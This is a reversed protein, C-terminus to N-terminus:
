LEPHVTKFDAENAAYVASIASIMDERRRAVTGIILLAPATPQSVSRLSALDIWHLEQNPRTANSVILCPTQPSMGAAIVQKAIENYRGNPMYIALTSGAAAFHTIETPGRGIAHQATLFVVSSAGDRDTLPVQAQASAAVAATIGPVIEFEIGARRLAAMEEAARGFILPDGGKLRVVTAASRAFDVLMRNIGDQAIHKDGARKGVDVLLAHPRVLALISEDVLADHLVVDACKLIRVAKLTLLDPDGPGAGILYVKGTM